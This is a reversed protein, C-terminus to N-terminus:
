TNHHNLLHVVLSHGAPICLCSAFQRVQKIMYNLVEFLKAYEEVKSLVTLLPLYPDRLSEGELDAIDKRYPVLVENLGSCFAKLYVGFPQRQTDEKGSCSDSIYACFLCLCLCTGVVCQLENMQDGRDYTLYQVTIVTNEKLMKWQGFLILM